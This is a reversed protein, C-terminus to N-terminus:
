PSESSQYHIGHVVLKKKLDGIGRYLLNRVKHATWNLCAAIEEINMGMLHLKLVKGRSVPLSDISHDLLSRWEEKAAMNEVPNDQQQYLIEQEATEPPVTLAREKSLKQMMRSTTTYAVRWIYSYPRRIKKESKRFEQWLKITIEQEIDELDGPDIKPSTDIIVKKILKAFRNILEVADDINSTGQKM